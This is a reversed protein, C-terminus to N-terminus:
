LDILCKEALHNPGKKSPIRLFLFHITRSAQEKAAINPPMVNSQPTIGTTEFYLLMEAVFADHSKNGKLMDLRFRTSEKIRISTDKSTTAMIERIPTQM